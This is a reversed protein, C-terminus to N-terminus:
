VIHWTPLIKWVHQPFGRNIWLLWYGAQSEFVTDGSNLDLNRNSCQRAWFSPLIHLSLLFLSFYNFSLSVLFLFLSLFSPIRFCFTRIEVSFLKSLLVMRRILLVNIGAAVASFLFPEEIFPVFLSRMSQFSDLISLPQPVLLIRHTCAHSAIWLSLFPHRYLGAFVRLTSLTHWSQKLNNGYSAFLKLTFVSWHRVAM